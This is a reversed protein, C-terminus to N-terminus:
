PYLLKLQRMARNIQQLRTKEGGRDPHHEMVLRRYQQKIEDLTTPESLGLIALAELHNDGVAYRQWFHNLLGAVEAATTTKLNTLDLYYDRLPDHRAPVTTGSCAMPVLRINLCHIEIDVSEDDQLLQERLLYLAHFLLFHCQFMGLDSDYVASVQQQAELTALLEYESIGSPHQLLIDHISFQLLALQSQLNAGTM